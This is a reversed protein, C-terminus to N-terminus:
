KIDKDAMLFPGYCITEQMLGQLISQNLTHMIEIFNDIMRSPMFWSLDGLEINERFKTTVEDMTQETTGESFYWCLDTFGTAIPKELSMYKYFNFVQEKIPTGIFFTLRKKETDYSKLVIYFFDKRKTLKKLVFDQDILHSYDVETDLDVEIGLGYNGEVDENKIIELGLQALENEFDQQETTM